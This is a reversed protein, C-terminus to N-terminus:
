EGMISFNDDLNDLIGKALNEDLIAVLKCNEKGVIDEILKKSRVIRAGHKRALKQAEKVCNDSASSCLVLLSIGSKVTGIANVGSRIKQSKIAFGIYTEIKSRQNQMIM